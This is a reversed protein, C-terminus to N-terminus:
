LPLPSRPHQLGMFPLTIGTQIDKTWALLLLLGSGWKGAAVSKAGIDYMIPELKLGFNENLVGLIESSSKMIEPGIGDGQLMMIQM